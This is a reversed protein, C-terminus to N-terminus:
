ISHFVASHGRYLTCFQLIAKIYLAFSYYAMSVAHFVSADEAALRAARGGEALLPPEGGADARAHSGRARLPLGQQRALEPRHHDHVQALVSRSNCQKNLTFFQIIGNIFPSFYYYAM